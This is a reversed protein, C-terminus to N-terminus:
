LEYCSFVLTIPLHRSEFGLFFTKSFIQSCIFSALCNTVNAQDLLPFRVFIFVISVQVSDASIIEGGLQKALALAVRTKGVATPGAIVIVRAKPTRLATKLMPRDGHGIRGAFELCPTCRASIEIGCTETAATAPPSEVTTLLRNRGGEGVAVKARVSLRSWQIPRPHLSSKQTSPPLPDFKTAPICNSSSGLQSAPPCARPTFMHGVQQTWGKARNIWFTKWERCRICPSNLLGSNYTSQPLCRLPSVRMRAVPGSVSRTSADSIRRSFVVTVSHDFSSCGLVDVNDIVLLFCPFSAILFSAKM